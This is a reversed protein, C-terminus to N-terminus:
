SPQEQGQGPRPHDPQPNPTPSVPIVLVFSPFSARTPLRKLGSARASAAARRSCFRPLQGLNFRFGLICPLCPLRSFPDHPSSASAAYSLGPVRLSARWPGRHGTPMDVAPRPARIGWTRRHPYRMRADGPWAVPTMSTQSDPLSRPALRLVPRSCWPPAPYAASLPAARLAPVTGSVTHEAGPVQM